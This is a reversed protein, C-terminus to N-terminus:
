GNIALYRLELETKKPLTKRLSERAMRILTEKTIDRKTDHCTVKIPKGERLLERLVSLSTYQVPYKYGSELRLTTKSGIVRFRRNKYRVVNYVSHNLQKIDNFKLEDLKTRFITPTNNNM